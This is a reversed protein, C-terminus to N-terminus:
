YNMYNNRNKSSQDSQAYYFCYFRSSGGDFGAVFLYLTCIFPILGGCIEFILKKREVGGALFARLPEGKTAFIVGSRKEWESQM